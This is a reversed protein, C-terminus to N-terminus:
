RARCRTRHTSPSSRPTRSCPPRGSRSTTPIARDREQQRVPRRRDQGLHGPGPRHRPVEDAVQRRRHRPVHRVPRRRGRDRGHVAPRHGPVPLLQLRHRGRGDKFAGLGTIFSAQHHFECGPPRSSCACRRRDAFNTTLIPTPAATPRRRRGRRVDRLGGQDRALDVQAHGGVVRRVQRTRGPPPRPGRDLRHGALRVGRRVRPGHVLDGDRQGQQGDGPGILEDWTKPPAALYDHAKPSYWILGKVASKIFVGYIQATARARARGADQATEEKYKATDLVTDLPKLARGEVPGDAGPRAPRRPRAPRGLRRRDDPDPQHRPHGHVQGQQRDGTEWPAVM